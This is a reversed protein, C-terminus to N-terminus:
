PSWEKVWVEYAEHESGMVARYLVNATVSNSGHYTDIRAAKSGRHCALPTSGDIWLSFHTHSFLFRGLGQRRM